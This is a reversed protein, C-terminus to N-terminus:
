DNRPRGPRASDERRPFLLARNGNSRIVSLAAPLATAVNQLHQLVIGIRVGVISFVSCRLLDPAFKLAEDTAM